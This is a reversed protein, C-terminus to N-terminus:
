RGAEVGSVAKAPTAIAQRSLTNLAVGLVIAASGVLVTSTLEERFILSSAVLAVAPAALAFPTVKVSPYRTLLRSWIIGTAISVPYALYLISAWGWASLGTLTSAIAAPGELVLLLPVLMLTALASTWVVFSTPDARKLSKIVLNACSWATAAAFVVLLPVLAGTDPLGYLIVALGAGALALGALDRAGPRERYLVLSLGVTVIAQMQLVVATVGAPAGMRFATFLLCFKVVAFAFAFLALSAWPADPKPVFFILPLTALLFRMTVLFLPSAETVAYKMVIFNFGWLVPLIVALTLDKRTM